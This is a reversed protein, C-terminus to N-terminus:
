SEAETYVKVSKITMNAFSQSQATGYGFTIAFGDSTILNNATKGIQVGDAYVTIAGNSDTVAKVTKGNFFDPDSINFIDQWGSSYYAKFEDYQGHWNLVAISNLKLMRGNGFGNISGKNGNNKAMNAVTDIEFEVTAGLPFLEACGLSGRMGGSANTFVVGNSNQVVTGYTATSAEIAFEYGNVSDVLSDTLDWNALMIKSSNVIVNFTATKGNYDVTITSTGEVLTGSLTYGNVEASTSDDYYATVVLDSKLSDLSDTDKVTGSQTYVASISLLTAPPYMASHVANKASEIDLYIDDGSADDDYAVNDALTLVATLFSDLASKFEASMGTSQAIESKLDSIEDGVKKSDAAAGAVALSTDIVVGTTVTINEDAWNSVAEAVQEQTPTGADSWASGNATKTLVQGVTGGTPLPSVASLVEEILSLDSDSVIGGNTPDKEVLVIFNATGHTLGDIRLEFVSKGAAATMQRTEAIVVKGDVVTGSNNILYGDSKIGVISGDTPIYPTGDEQFLSFVWQEGEEAQNVNIVLPISHGANLFLNFNRTIM